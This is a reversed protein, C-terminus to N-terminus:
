WSELTLRKWTDTAVCVYIYDADQAMQGAIGPSSAAAPVETFIETLPLAIFDNTM